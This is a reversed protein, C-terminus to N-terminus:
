VWFETMACFVNFMDKLIDWNVELHTWIMGLSSSNAVIGEVSSRNTKGSALAEYLMTRKKDLRCRLSLLSLVLSFIIRSFHLQLQSSLIATTFCRCLLPGLLAHADSSTLFQPTTKTSSGSKSSSDSSATFSFDQLLSFVVLACMLAAFVKYFANM